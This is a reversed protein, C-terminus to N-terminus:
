NGTIPHDFGTTCPRCAFTLKPLYQPHWYGDMGSIERGFGPLGINWAGACLIKRHNIDNAIHRWMAPLPM